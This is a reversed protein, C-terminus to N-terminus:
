AVHYLEMQLLVIIPIVDVCNKWNLKGMNFKLFYKTKYKESLIEGDSIFQLKCRIKVKCVCVLM